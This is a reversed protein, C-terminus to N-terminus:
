PDQVAAIQHFSADCGEPYSIIGPWRIQTPTQQHIGDEERPVSATVVGVVKDNMDLLSGLTGVTSLVM